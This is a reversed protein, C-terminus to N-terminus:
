GRLTLPARPIEDAMRYPAKTTPKSWVTSMDTSRTELMDGLFLGIHAPDHIDGLIFAEQHTPRDFTIVINGINFFMHILGRRKIDIETCRVQDLLVDNVSYSLFPITRVELIKRNTVIYFHYYWSAFSILLALGIVGGALLILFLMPFFTIHGASLAYLLGITLLSFLFVSLILNTFFTYIHTRTALLIREGSLNLFQEYQDARLSLAKRINM